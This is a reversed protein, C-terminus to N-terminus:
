SLPAPNSTRTIQPRMRDCVEIFGDSCWGTKDCVRFLSTHQFFNTAHLEMREIEQCFQARSCARSVICLRVFLDSSAGWEFSWRSELAARIKTARTSNKASSPITGLKVQLGRPPESGRDENQNQLLDLVRQWTIGRNLSTANTGLQV